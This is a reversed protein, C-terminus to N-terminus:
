LQAEAVAPSQACYREIFRDHPLMEEVRDRIESRFEDMRAILRDEPMADAVPSYDEPILGQGIFV